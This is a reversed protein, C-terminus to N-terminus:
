ATEQEELLGPLPALTAGLRFRDVVAVLGLDILAQLYVDHWPGEGVKLWTRAGEAVRLVCRPGSEGRMFDLQLVTRAGDRRRCVARLAEVLRDLEHEAVVPRCAAARKRAAPRKRGTLTTKRTASM